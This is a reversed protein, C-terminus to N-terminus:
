GTYNRAANHGPARGSGAAPPSRTSQSRVVFLIALAAPLAILDSLDSTLQVPAVSPIPAVRGAAFAARAPWQLIGLSWRYTEGVVPVLEIGVFALIALAATVPVARRGPAPLAPWRQRALDAVAVFLFPLLILVAVDSLKGSVWGPHNPKLLHDNVVMLALAALPIPHLVVDLRPAIPRAWATPKM